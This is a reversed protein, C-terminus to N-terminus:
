WLGDNSYGLYYTMVKGELWEQLKKDPSVSCRIYWLVWIEIKVCYRPKQVKQELSINVLCLFSVLIYNLLYNSFILDYSCILWPPRGYCPPWYHHDIIFNIDAPLTGTQGMFSGAPSHGVPVSPGPSSIPMPSPVHLPNSPSHALPSPHPLM